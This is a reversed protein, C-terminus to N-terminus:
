FPLDDEQSSANFVNNQESAPTQDGAQDKRSGGLLILKDVRCQISAHIIEKDSKSRYGRADPRGEIKVLQGKKLYDAIKMNEPKRWVTCDVWTTHEHKQGSKDSWRETCALPFNIAATGNELHRISCDRGIHGIASLLIEM